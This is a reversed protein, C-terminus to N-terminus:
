KDLSKIYNTLSIANSPIDNTLKDIYLIGDTHDYEHQFVIAPYDHFSVNKRYELEDKLPNYFFGNVKIEMHRLTVFNKAKTPVSLCDEGDDLYILESSKSVIEPNIVVFSYIKNNFDMFHLAFMRKLINVQPAAIGVSEILHYKERIERNQSNIVFELLKKALLKDSKSLPIRANISVKRINPHTDKIIDNMTFM